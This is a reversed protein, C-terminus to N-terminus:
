RPITVKIEAGFLMTRDNDRAAWKLLTAPSKVVRGDFRTVGDVVVKIPQSFDFQDPSVLLTFGGVGRTTATVLNGARLLDVRGFPKPHEFFAVVRPASTPNFTGSLEIPAGDRTVTLTLPTGPDNLSLLDIVDVGAPIARPGIKAILDGPRLGFSAANSGATVAVVRAGSNQIGFNPVATTEFNNLDALPATAAAAPALTDIVLWHARATGASLDSEWTLRDPLPQRPHATVFGEFSDKV